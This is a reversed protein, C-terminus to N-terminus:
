DVQLSPYKTLVAQRISPAQVPRFLVEATRVDNAALCLEVIQRVAADRLLDDSVKMAIVMAAKAARQYRETDRENRRVESKKRKGAPIDAFAGVREASDAAARCIKRITHAAEIGGIPWEIKEDWVDTKGAKGFWWM